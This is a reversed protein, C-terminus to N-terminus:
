ERRPEVSVRCGGAISALGGGRRLYILRGYLPTRGYDPIVARHLRYDRALRPDGHIWREVDARLEGAMVVGDCDADLVPERELRLVIADPAREDFLYDLDFRKALRGGPARGIVPDTLGGLDTIELASRFGIEGIDVLAVSDAGTEALWDEIRRDEHRITRLTDDALGVLRSAELAGFGVCFMALPLVVLRPAGTVLASSGAAAAALAAYCPLLFRGGPMWDGGELVAALAWALAVALWARPWKGGAAAGIVALALLPLAWPDLLGDLLYRLGEVRDPPKAFYTNPLWADFLVRRVALLALASGAVAASLLAARRVEDRGRVVTLAAAFAVPLWMGEPRCWPAVLAAAVGVWLPVRGAVAAVAALTLAVFLLTELGTATHYAVPGSIALLLCALWPARRGHQRTVTALTAMALLLGLCGVASAVRPIAQVGLLKGAALGLALWLPSSFGEAAAAAPEFTLGHGALANAAYRHTIFSDDLQFPLVALALGLGGLGAV